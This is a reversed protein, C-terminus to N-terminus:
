KDLAFKQLLGVKQIWNFLQKQSLLISKKFHVYFFVIIGQARASARNGLFYKSKKRRGIRNQKKGWGVCLNSSCLLAIDPGCIKNDVQGRRGGCVLSEFSNSPFFGSQIIYVVHMTQMTFCQMSFAIFVATLEKFMPYFSSPRLIVCFQPKCLGSLDSDRSSGKLLLTKFSELSDLAHCCYELMDKIDNAM